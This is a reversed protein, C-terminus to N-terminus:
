KHVKLGVAVHCCHEHLVTNEEGDSVVVDGQQVRIREPAWM